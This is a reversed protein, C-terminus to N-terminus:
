ATRARGGRTRSSVLDAAPLEPSADLPIDDSRDVWNNTMITHPESWVWHWWHHPLFLIDGAELAAARWLPALPREDLDQTHLRTVPHNLALEDFPNITLREHEKGAREVRLFDRHPAHYFVKSGALVLALNDYSDFHTPGGGPEIRGAIFAKTEQDSRIQKCWEDAVRNLQLQVQQMRLRASGRLAPAMLWERASDVYVTRRRGKLGSEIRRATDWAEGLPLVPSTDGATQQPVSEHATVYSSWSQLLESREASSLKLRIILPTSARLAAYLRTMVSPPLPTASNVSEPTDYTDLARRGHASRTRKSPPEASSAMHSRCDRKYAPVLSPPNPSICDLLSLSALLRVTSSPGSSTAVAWRRSDLLQLARLTAPLLRTPM